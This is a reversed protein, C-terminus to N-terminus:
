GGAGAMRLGEAELVGILRDQVEASPFYKGLLRQPQTRWLPNIAVLKGVALRAKDHEGAMDAAVARAILGIPSQDNAIMAAHQEAAAREGALYAGIFLYSDFWAPRVLTHRAAENLMALGRDIEGVGVLRSGYNALTNTDFPNLQRARDAALFAPAIEGRAFRVVSLADHARGSQPKLEVARQAYQLARDLAAPEGPHVIDLYFDRLYVLALGSYGTAYSPYDGVMRTLCKRVREHRVIDFRRWYEVTEVLCTRRPDRGSHDSLERTWLIGFPEAITSALERVIENRAAEPNAAEDLDQFVRSWIVTGDAADVLRFGLTVAGDEAYDARGSLRYESWDSSEGIATLDAVVNIGDFRAMADTLEDRLQETSFAPDAPEGVSEFPQVSVVPGPRVAGTTDDTGPPTATGAGGSWLAVLSTVGGVIIVLAALALIRRPM